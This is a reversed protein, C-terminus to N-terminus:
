DRSRQLSTQFEAVTWPSVLVRYGADQTRKLVTQAPLIFRPGQIGLLRYLFNTDLYVKQGSATERVLMAADPDISLITLFYAANLMRNLYRKQNETPERLLGSFANDRVVEIHRPAHPLFDFGEEELQAFLEAARDENPYLLLASEAGHRRLVTRLYIDLEESLRSLDDETLGPWRKLLSEHWEDIAVRQVQESKAATAELRRQEAEALQFAGSNKTVLKQKILSDFSRAVEVRDLDIGFLASICERCEEIAGCGGGQEALATLVLDEQAERSSAGGREFPRYQSLRQIVQLDSPSTM